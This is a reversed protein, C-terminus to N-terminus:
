GTSRILKVRMTERRTSHLIDAQPLEAREAIGPAHEWLWTRAEERVREKGDQADKIARRVLAALLLEEPMLEM